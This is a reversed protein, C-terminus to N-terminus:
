SRIVGPSIPICCHGDVLVRVLHGGLPLSPTALMVIILFIWYGEDMGGAGFSFSPPRVCWQCCLRKAITVTQCGFYWSRERAPFFRELLIAKQLLLHFAPEKTMVAAGFQTGETCSLGLPCQHWASWFYADNATM